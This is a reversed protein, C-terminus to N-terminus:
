YSMSIYHIHQVTCTRSGSNEQLLGDHTSGEVDSPFYQIWCASPIKRSRFSSFGVQIGQSSVIKLALLIGLSPYCKHCLLHWQVHVLLQISPIRTSSSIPSTSSVQM